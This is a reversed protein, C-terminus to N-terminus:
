LRREFFRPGPLPSATYPAIEVFGHRRYLAIADTMTALTDLRVARYGLSRAGDLAATLLRAGTGRGRGRPEVYLRKLEAVEPALPRVAVCGLADDGLRCALWLGGGPPAYAGPLGDLEDLFGQYGLDVGIAQQYAMM